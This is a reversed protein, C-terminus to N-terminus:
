QAVPSLQYNEQVWQLIKRADPELHESKLAIIAIRHIKKDPTQFKFLFVGTYRAALTFGVKGGIFSPDGTFINRSGLTPIDFGIGGFSRVTKGNTVELIPSRNNVIYRALSFLDQATSMNNKEPNEKNDLGHPNFFITNNMLIHTSKENMLQITKQPGLFGSLAEAADNSSPLLLPYLLEVVRLNDGIRLQPTEGYTDIMHQTITISRRLDINETVVLATMLKTISAIPLVEKANKQVLEFGSDLDAVLYSQASVDPDTLSKKDPWAYPQNEKDIVLVPMGILAFEYLTKSNEDSLQICGGTEDTIRKEGGEFFPLGHFYYKGYYNMGYPMYAEAIGSFSAENGSLIKYVGAASGGWSQPDGLLFIPLTNSLQGDQYLQVEKTSLNAVIFSQKTALLDNKIDPLSKIHVPPLTISVKQVETTTNTKVVTHESFARIIKANFVFAGLSYVGTIM